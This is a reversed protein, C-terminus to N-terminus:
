AIGLSFCELARDDDAALALPRPTRKPLYARENWRIVAKTFGGNPGPVIRVLGVDELARFVRRMESNSTLAQTAPRKLDHGSSIFQHFPWTACGPPMKPALDQGMRIRRTTAPTWAMGRGESFYRSPKVLYPGTGDAGVLRAIKIEDLGEPNTPKATDEDVAFSERGHVKACAKLIAVPDWCGPAIAMLTVAATKHAVTGALGGAVVVSCQRRGCIETVGAADFLGDADPTPPPNKARVSNCAPTAYARWTDM